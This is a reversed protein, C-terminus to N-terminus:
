RPFVIKPNAEAKAQMQAAKAQSLAKQALKMAKKSNGNSKAKKAKKLFKGTDRWLYNMKKAIKMEKEAEAVVDKYSPGSNSGACGALGSVALILASSIIIKKM